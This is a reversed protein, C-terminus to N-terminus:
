DGGIRGGSPGGNSTSGFFSKGEGVLMEPRFDDIPLLPHDIVFRYDTLIRAKILGDFIAEPGAGPKLGGAIPGSQSFGPLSGVFQLLPDNPGTIQAETFGLDKLRETHRDAVTQKPDTSAESQAKYTALAFELEAALEDPGVFGALVHLLEGDPTLTLIQINHEGNGRLCPGPPDKPAHAFSEGASPEGETNLRCSVFRDNLLRRVKASSFSVTRL